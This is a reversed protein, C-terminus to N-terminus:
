SDDDNSTGASLSGSAVKGELKEVNNWQPWCLHRVEQMLAITPKETDGEPPVLLYIKTGGRPSNKSGSKLPVSIRRERESNSIM